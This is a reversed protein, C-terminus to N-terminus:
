QTGISKVLIQMQYSAGSVEPLKISDHLIFLLYMYMGSGFFAHTVTQAFFYWLSQLAILMVQLLPFIALDPGALM